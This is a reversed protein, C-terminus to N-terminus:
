RGRATPPVVPPEVPPPAVTPRQGRPPRPMAGEAPGDVRRPTARPPTAEREEDSREPAPGGARQPDSRATESRPGGCGLVVTVAIMSALRM